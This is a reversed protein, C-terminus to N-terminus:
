EDDPVSTAKETTDATKDIPGGDLQGDHQLDIIQDKLKHPQGLSTFTIEAGDSGASQVEFLGYKLIAGFPSTKVRIDTIRNLNVSIEEGGLIGGRREILRRNTLTIKNRNWMYLYLGVTSLTRWWFSWSWRSRRYHAIIEERQGM